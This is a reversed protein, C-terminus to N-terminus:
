AFMSIDFGYHIIDNFRLGKDLGNLYVMDSEELTFSCCQLNKAMREPNKSKPIVAIGRQTAWRLMVQAPAVNHKKSIAIITEDQLLPVANLAASNEIETFSGPGLSSYGTVQIGKKKALDVLMPQALYPHHEIQLTAPKIRAYHLLDIILQAQFNSVGISRVLAADVLGEMGEWTDRMSANSFVIDGKEDEFEPPYKVDFPIFKTAVPFHILYLDFYELNWDQLSKKYGQEVRHKEHYTAWLKSVIFLDSRKVLGDKIARAVGDGCEKENGYDAAGDFLRYGAKIANYITDACTANDVKWCGFGVLPMVHGSSLKVTPCTTTM